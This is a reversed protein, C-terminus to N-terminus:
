AGDGVGGFMALISRNERLKGEIAILYKGKSSKLLVYEQSYHDVFAMLLVLAWLFVVFGIEDILTNRSLLLSFLVITLAVPPLAIRWKKGFPFALLILYSLAGAVLGADWLGSKELMEPPLRLFDILGCIIIGILLFGMGPFHRLVTARELRSLIKVEAIEDRKIRVPLKGFAYWLIVKDNQVEVSTGWSAFILPWGLFSLQWYETCRPLIIILFVALVVMIFPIGSLNLPRAGPIKM